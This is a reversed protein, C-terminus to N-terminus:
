ILVFYEVIVIIIGNYGKLKSIRKFDWLMNCLVM